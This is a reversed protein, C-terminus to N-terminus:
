LDELQLDLEQSWCKLLLLALLFTMNSGTAKEGGAVCCTQVAHHTHLRIAYWATSGLTTAITMLEAM